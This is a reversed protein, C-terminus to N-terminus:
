ESIVHAVMLIASVSVVFLALWREPAMDRFLDM